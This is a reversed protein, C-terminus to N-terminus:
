RDVIKLIGSLMEGLGEMMRSEEEHDKPLEYAIGRQMLEPISDPHIEYQEKGAYLWNRLSRLSYVPMPLRKGSESVIHVCPDDHKYCVEIEAITEPLATKEIETQLQLRTPRQIFELDSLKQTYILAHRKSHVVEAFLCSQIVWQNENDIILKVSSFPIDNQSHLVEMQQQLQEYEDKNILKKKHASKLFLLMQEYAVDHVVIHGGQTRFDYGGTEENRVFGLLSEPLPLKEILQDYYALFHEHLVKREVGERVLQRLEVKSTASEDQLKHLKAKQFGNDDYKGTVHPDIITVPFLTSSSVEQKIKDMEATSIMGDNHARDIDHFATDKFIVPFLVSGDSGLIFAQPIGNPFKNGLIQIEDESFSFLQKVGVVHIHARIEAM